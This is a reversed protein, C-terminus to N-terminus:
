TVLEGSIRQCRRFFFVWVSECSTVVKLSCIRMRNLLLTNKGVHTLHKPSEYSLTAPAQRLRRNQMRTLAVRCQDGCINRLCQFRLNPTEGCLQRFMGTVSMPRITLM